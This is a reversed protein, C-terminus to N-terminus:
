FEPEVQQSVRTLNGGAQRGTKKESQRNDIAIARQSLVSLLFPIM